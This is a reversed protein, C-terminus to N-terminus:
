NTNKFRRLVVNFSATSDVDAARRQIGCIKIKAAEAVSEKTWLECIYVSPKFERSRLSIEVFSLPPFDASSSLVAQYGVVSPSTRKKIFLYARIHFMELTRNVTANSPWSIVACSKHVGSGNCTYM